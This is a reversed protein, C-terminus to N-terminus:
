DDTKEALTKVFKLSGANYVIMDSSQDEDIDSTASKSKRLMSKTDVFFPIIDTQSIKQFGLTAYGAGESWELDAYTMVDDPNKERIFATLLKDLGGSVNTNLLSAFRVMEFSRFPGDARQFVRPASFTAVAVLLEDASSDYNFDDNLIRFYRKPLFLGYRTKASVSGNLHNEELFRAAINLDIRRVHTLRAAVKQSTGLMANLRSKVIAASRHWFDEWIIVCKIGSTRMAITQEVTQRWTEASGANKWSELDILLIQIPLSKTKRVEVLDTFANISGFDSFTLGASSLWDCFQSKFGPKSISSDPKQM